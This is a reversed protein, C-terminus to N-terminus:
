DPAAGPEIGLKDNVDNLDDEISLIRLRSYRNAALHGHARREGAATL